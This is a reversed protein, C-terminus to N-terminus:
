LQEAINDGHLFGGQQGITKSIIQRVSIEPHLPSGLGLRELHYVVKNKVSQVVVTPMEVVCRSDFKGYTSSNSDFSGILIPFVLPLKSMSTLEFALQHELLLNDCPSDSTLTIFSSGASLEKRAVADTSILCVFVKSQILGDCFEDEWPSADTTEKRDVWVTLGRHRLLDYLRNCLASDCAVRYSIFVDFTPKEGLMRVPVRNSIYPHDLIASLSPRLESDKSLMRSVLNRAPVNDISNLREFKFSNQWESLQQCQHYDMDHGSSFLYGRTCMQYLVVGLSWVDFNPQALLPLLRYEHEATDFFLMEPPAYAMSVKHGVPLGIKCSGDFDILVLRNEANRVINQPKIDGHIFQNLHLHQVCRVLDEFLRRIIKNDLNEADIIEQLNRTAAPMIICYKNEQFSRRDIEQKFSVNDDANFAAIIPVVHFPLTHERIRLERKFCHDSTMLKIAVEIRLVTDKAFFLITHESKYAPRTSLLEYRDYFLVLKRLLQRCPQSAVDIIRQGDENMDNAIDKVISHHQDIFLCAGDSLRVDSSSMARTFDYYYKSMHYSKPPVANEWSGSSKNFIQVSPIFSVGMKTAYSVVSMYESPMHSLPRKSCEGFNIECVQETWLSFAFTYGEEGFSAISAGVENLLVGDYIFSVTRNVADLCCGVITSRAWKRVRVDATTDGNIRYIRRSGDIAASGFTSGVGDTDKTGPRWNAAAVGLQFIGDSLLVIELYVKTGTISLGLQRFTPFYLGDSSTSNLTVLSSFQRQLKINCSLDLLKVIVSRSAGLNVAVMLPTNGFYDVDCISEANATITSLLLGSDGANQRLACHMPLSAQRLKTEDVLAKASRDKNLNAFEYGFEVLVRQVMTSSTLSRSAIRQLLGEDNSDAALVLKKLVRLLTPDSPANRYGISLNLIFMAGADLLIRVVQLYGKAAAAQLPSIGELSQKDIEAKRSLLERVVSELGKSAALYLPTLGLCNSHNIEANNNLLEHVIPEQNEMLAFHLATNGQITKCNLLKRMVQPGITNLLKQHGHKAILHLVSLGNHATADIDCSANILLTLMDLHGYEAALLVATCGDHAKFERLQALDTDSQETLFSIVFSCVAVRDKAACQHLISWGIYNCDLLNAKADVLHLLIRLHGHSAAILAATDGEATRLELMHQLNNTQRYSDILWTCVSEHGGRSCLHLASWGDNNITLLNCDAAFLLKLVELHGCSAALLAPTCGDAARADKVSSLLESSRYKEIVLSCVYKGGQVASWHLMSRGQKCIALVNADYQILQNLAGVQGRSAAILAPTCGDNNKSELMQMLIGADQYSNLLWLMGDAGRDCWWHLVNWGRKNMVTLDAGAAALQRLMAFHGFSAATLLPTNGRVTRRQLLDQIINGRCRDFLWQCIHDHGKQAALHLINNGHSDAVYFNADNELLMMLISLHGNIAAVLAPTKADANGRKLVHPLILFEKYLDILWRCTTEDGDEAFIHLISSGYKDSAVLRDGYKVLLRLIGHHHCSAAVAAPSEGDVTKSKLVEMLINRAQFQELLWTCMIEDGRRCSWHLMTQGYRDTGLLDDGADSLQRLISINGQSTAVLAPTMLDSSRIKLMRALEGSKSGYLKILYMCIDSNGNEACIHLLSQGSNSTSTCDAGCAVLQKLASLDGASVAVGAPTMGDKVSLNVDTTLAALSDCLANSVGDSSSALGHFITLDGAGADARFSSSSNNAMRSVTDLPISVTGLPIGGKV